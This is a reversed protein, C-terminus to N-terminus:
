WCAHLEPWACVVVAKYGSSDLAGGAGSLLLSLLFGVNNGCLHLTTTLHPPLSLDLVDWSVHSQQM